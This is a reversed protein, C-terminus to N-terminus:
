RNFKMGALNLKIGALILTINLLFYFISLNFKEIFHTAIDERLSFNGILYMYINALSIM